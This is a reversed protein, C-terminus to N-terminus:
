KMSSVCTWYLTMFRGMRLSSTPERSNKSTDAWSLSAACSSAFVKLSIKFWFIFSPTEFMRRTRVSVYVTLAGDKSAATFDRERMRLSMMSARDRMPHEASTM